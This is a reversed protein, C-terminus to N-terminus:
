VHSEVDKLAREAIDIVEEIIYGADEGDEAVSKIEELAIRLRSMKNHMMRFALEMKMLKYNAMM